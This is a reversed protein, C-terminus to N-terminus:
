FLSKAWDSQSVVEQGLILHYTKGLESGDDFHRPQPAM